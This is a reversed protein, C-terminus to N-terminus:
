KEKKKKAEAEEIKEALVLVKNVRNPISRIAAIEGQVRCAETLEKTLDM